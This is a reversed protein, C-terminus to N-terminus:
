KDRCSSRLPQGRVEATIATIAEVPAEGLHDEGAQAQVEETPAAGPGAKAARM